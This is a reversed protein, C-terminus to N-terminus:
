QIYGLAELQEITEHDMLPAASKLPFDGVVGSRSWLRRQKSTETIAMKRKPVVLEGWRLGEVIERVDLQSVLGDWQGDLGRIMFFIRTVADDLVDIHGLDVAEGHDALILVPVDMPIHDLLRAIERDMRSVLPGYQKWDGRYEHPEWYHVWLFDHDLLKLAADTTEEASRIQKDPKSFVKFENEFLELFRVSVAAAPNDFSDVWTDKDTEQRLDTFESFLKGTFISTHAPITTSAASVAYSFRLAKERALNPAWEETIYDRRTTDLTILVISAM